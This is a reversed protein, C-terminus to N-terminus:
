AFRNASPIPMAKWHRDGKYVQGYSARYMDTQIATRITSEIEEETPWIDKLFV